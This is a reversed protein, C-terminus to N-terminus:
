LQSKFIETWTCNSLGREGARKKTAVSRVFTLVKVPLVTWAM